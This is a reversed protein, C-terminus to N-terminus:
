GHKATRKAMRKLKGQSLWQSRPKGALASEVDLLRPTLMKLNGTPIDVLLGSGAGFIIDLWILNRRARPKLEVTARKNLSPSYLEITMKHKAPLRVASTFYTTTVTAGINSSAAFVESTIDQKTGNATVEIDEPSRLLSVASKGHMLANNLTGFCGTLAISAYSLGAITLFKKMKM